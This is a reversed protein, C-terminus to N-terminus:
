ILGRKQLYDRGIKIDPQGGSERGPFLREIYKGVLDAELNVADGVQKIGLTTVKATHPIIHRPIRSRDDRQPDPQDRGGHDVREARL